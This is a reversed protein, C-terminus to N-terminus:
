DFGLLARLGCCRAELSDFGFLLGDVAAWAANTLCYLEAKYCVFLKKLLLLLRLCLSSNSCVFLNVSLM